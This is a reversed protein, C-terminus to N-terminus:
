HRPRGLTIRCDCCPTLAPYQEDLSGTEDSSACDVLLIELQDRNTSRELAEIARRLAAAQNYGILIASVRPTTPVQPETPNM